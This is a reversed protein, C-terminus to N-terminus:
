QLRAALADIAALQRAFVEPYAAFHSRAAALLQRSEDARTGAALNARAVEIALDHVGQGGGAEAMALGRRAADAGVALDGRRTAVEAILRLAYIHRVSGPLHEAYVALAREGYRGADALDDALLHATGLNFLTDALDPHRPGLAREEIPLARSLVEVAERYRRQKMAVVAQNADCKAVDPHNPGLSKALIERAARFNAVAQDQATREDTFVVGLNLLAYARDLLDEGPHADLQRQAERALALADASRDAEALSMALDARMLACSAHAASLARDCRAVADEGHAVAQALDGVGAHSAALSQEFTAIAFEDEDPSVLSRARTAYALAAAGDGRADAAAALAGLVRVVGGAGRRLDREIAAGAARLWPEVARADGQLDGIVQILGALAPLYVEADDLAQGAYYADSYFGIAAPFDGRASAIEGRLRTLTAANQRDDAAASALAGVAVEAAAVRGIALDVAALELGARIAAAAPAPPAPNAALAVSDVCDRAAPAARLRRLYQQPSDRALDADDVIRATVQARYRLCAVSREYLEPPLIRDIRAARCAADATLRLRHALAGVARTGADGVAADVRAVLAAPLERDVLASAARCPDPTARPWAWWTAVAIAAAAGAAGIRRRRQGVARDLARLFQDLDRFRDAPAVALARRLVRGVAPPVSGRPPSPPGARVADELSRTTKGAHPRQGYLAEWIVVALAFQDARVDAKGLFQEPAMYAPTGVAAGTRTLRDSLVDKRGAGSRSGSIPTPTPSAGDVGGLTPGDPDFAVAPVGVGVEAREDGQARALGFDAVKPVGAETLLVNEPKFDRHVLGAAHAAALGQGAARCRALAERWPRRAAKLWSRLTGGALYEMAVFVDDGYRGVAHVTVVHPHSLRAMATAERQLRDLGAGAHHLKVAVPRDLATDHALYVVGMGGAGLRREIRFTEGVITGPALEPETPAAPTAALAALLPDLASASGASDLLATSQEPDVAADGVRQPSSPAVPEEPGPSPPSPERGEPHGVGRTDCPAGLGRPVAGRNM